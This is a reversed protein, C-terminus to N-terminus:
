RVRLVTAVHQLLLDEVWDAKVDEVKRNLSRADPLGDARVMVEGKQTCRFTIRSEHGVGKSPRVRLTAAAWYDRPLDVEVTADHGADKLSAAFAELVPTIEKVVRDRGFAQAEKEEGRRHFQVQWRTEEVEAGQKKSEDYEKFLDNLKEPTKYEGAM